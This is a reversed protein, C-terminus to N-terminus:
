QSLDDMEIEERQNNNMKNLNRAHFENDDILFEKLKQKGLTLTEQLMKNGVQMAPKILNLQYLVYTLGGLLLALTFFIPSRIVAMFENWGLVVIILYIYYPITSVQQIISRKTEIYRADVEKKFKNLLDAKELETMIHSFRNSDLDDDNVIDFDDDDDDDKVLSPEDYKKRLTENFIDCEPIIESSDNLKVMTLLPVLKLTASKAKNYSDDLEFENSYLRPVGNEDYRFIEEFKDKLIALVADKSFTKQILAYFKSWSKFKFKVISEKTLEKSIGLGFDVEDNSDKYQALIKGILEHFKKLINDWSSENFDNLEFLIYKNLQNSLRKTMKSIIKNLEVEQQKIISKDIDEIFQTVHNDFNIEGISLLSLAGSFQSVTTLKLKNIKDVFKEGDDSDTSISTQFQKILFMSLKKNYKAFIESYKSIIKENLTSRKQEYVSQNYKSALMDFQDLYDSKLDKMLLSIDSFYGEDLLSQESVELEPKTLLDQYKVLFEEYLNSVIEDCKFKAVLIQQTPLDLDKNSDIQDWCNNAYMTWGDIPLDHHYNPKWCYEPNSKDLLKDGLLKVDEDFKEAQLIKHSLAHFKIDFFDNFKFIDLEAPKNLGDWMKELDTTITTALNEIPTVGIHDRIVFLLLVKHKDSKNKLKNKGFLSLNVEFVTKLLGMNAGQYLGIQTEWINIILVESTSLAFLASKREFDQDEGRERGDTGEVDMVFINELTNGKKLCNSNVAPSYALWIGKTTQQRKTEDMVDFNTNFLKNLLTSKGTSQSGFVSIIHYNNEISSIPTTNEIYEILRQNFKKDENVVQIADVVATEIPVFSSDTSNSNSAESGLDSAVEQSVTNIDAHAETLGVVENEDITPSIMGTDVDSM